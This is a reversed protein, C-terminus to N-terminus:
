RPDGQRSISAHLKSLGTRVRTKATGLPIAEFEAIQAVTLGHVAALVVARSQEPPLNALARRLEGGADRALTQAEPDDDAAGVLLQLDQDQIPVQRYIRAADVALNHTITRLWSRVSGRRPDYLAAHRWAHEFAQQTIDEARHSDGSMAAVGFVTDAFRSVFRHAAVPDGAGFGALLGEDSLDQM